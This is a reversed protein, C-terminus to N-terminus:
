STREARLQVIKKCWERKVVPYRDYDIVSFGFEFGDAIAEFRSYFNGYLQGIVCKHCDQMQLRRLDIREVWSPGLDQDLYAVGKAIQTEFM